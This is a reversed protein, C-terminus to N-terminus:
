STDPVDFCQIEYIRSISIKSKTVESNLYMLFIKKIPLIIAKCHQKLKQQIVVHSIYTYMYGRQRSTGRVRGASWGDLDDRLM